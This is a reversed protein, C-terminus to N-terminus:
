NISDIFAKYGSKTYFDIIPMNYIDKWSDKGNNEEYKQIIRFGLFYCINGSLEDPLGDIIYECGDNRECHKFITCDEENTKFLLPELKNFIEKERELLLSTQEGFLGEEVSLNLYKYTFFQALGEDMTAGLGTNANKDKELIPAYILHEIEHAFLADVDETNWSEGFMDLIMADNNCGGFISFGMPGFYVLWRGKGKQGTIEQVATLHNTFLKNIDLTEIVSLRSTILSDHNKLLTRNWKCIGKSKFMKGKENGFIRGLCNDFTNKNPKYVKELIVLSDFQNGSHALIQQKFANHIVMDGVFISDEIHQVKKILASYKNERDLNSCSLLFLSFFFLILQKM